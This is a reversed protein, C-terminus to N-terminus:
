RFPIRSVRGFRSVAPSTTRTPSVSNRYSVHLRDVDRHQCVRPALAPVVLVGEDDLRREERHGVAHAAGLGALECGAQGCGRQLVRLLGAASALLADVLQDLLRVAADVLPLGLVGRSGPHARGHGDSEDLVPAHRDTVDAVRAGVEDALALELLQGLVVREDCLEDAAALERRLLGLAVWLARHDCAREAGVGVHVHVGKGDLGPRAIEEEDAGVPEGRHDVVLRDQRLDRAVPAVQLAGRLREDAGRVLAAPSSLMVTTKKSIPPSSSRSCM